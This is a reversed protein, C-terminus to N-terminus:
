QNALDEFTLNALPFNEWGQFDFHWWESPYQTFGFHGMVSFLFARNKLITDPLAKYEPHAKESFDDFVTPMPIEIGSNLEVLTLDIACGRNHRSGFRPNAVFNTDPCVEYFRLSASYPRYADYIRLALNYLSLSDQVKQLAQAVPKRAYAKAAPYIVEGTFNNKTAYRIDLRINSIEGELDVLEMEANEAVQQRYEEVTQVLNLNYPNSSRNQSRSRCSALYVMAALVFIM